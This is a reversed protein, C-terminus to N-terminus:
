GAQGPLGHGGGRARWRGQAGVTGGAQMGPVAGHAGDAGATGPQGERGADGSRCSLGLATQAGSGGRGGAGGRPPVGASGGAGNIRSPQGGSGGDGSPGGCPTWSGSAGDRGTSSRGDPGSEGQLGDRGHEGDAGAGAVFMAQEIRLPGTVDRLILAQSSEGPETADAARFNMRRLTGSESYDVIRLAVPASSEVWTRFEPGPQRWTGRGSGDDEGDQVVEFGGFMSVGDRLLVPQEISFRNEASGSGEVYVHDRNPNVSVADIAEQLDIYEHVGLSDATFGPRPRYVLVGRDFSFQPCGTTGIGSECGSRACRGDVEEFGELCRGCRAHRRIEEPICERNESECRLGDCRQVEADVLASCEVAYGPDRTTSCAWFGDNAVGCASGPAVDEPLIGCGGCPNRLPDGAEECTYAGQPCTWTGQGCTGCAGGVLASEGDCAGCSEVTSSGTQPRCDIREEDLCRFVRDECAGCTGGPRADLSGGGGCGNRIEAVDLCRLQESAPTEPALNLACAWVAGEGCSTGPPEELDGCGGCINVREECVLGGPADGDCVWEGCRGCTEGPEGTQPACGGCANRETAGECRLSNSGACVLVGDGCEGCAEGPDAPEGAFRLVQEGRCGNRAGEVCAVETGDCVWTNVGDLGQGAAPSCAEGPIGPLYGCGGCRDPARAGECDLSGDERCVWTGDECPGCAEGPERPLAGCSGCANRETGGECRLGDLGECVLRADGCPGCGEGPRAEEGDHVLDATGGCANRARVTGESGTPESGTPESGTPEGSGSGSVDTGPVTADSTGGSVDEDTGATSGSSLPDAPAQLSTDCGAILLALLAVPLLAPSRLPSCM